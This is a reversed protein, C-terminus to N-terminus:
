NRFSYGREKLFASIRTWDGQEDMSATHAVSFTSGPPFQLLKQELTKLSASGYQNISYHISEEPMLYDIRAEVPFVPENARGYILFSGPAPGVSIQGGCSFRCAVQEVDKTGVLTSLRDVDNPSLTWGHASVFSDFLRWNLDYLQWDEQTHKQTGIRAEAGSEVYKTHWRSLQEWVVPKMASSGYKRLYEAADPALPTGEEVQKAALSELVPTAEMFGLSPFFQGRPCYLPPRMKQLVQELRPRAESPSVKLLYALVPIQVKCPWDALHQDIFPLVIPLTARTTYRHLLTASRILEDPSNLAVFNAAIGRQQAAPLSQDPLRLYLSSFRPAPRVVEQRMFATAPVPDLELWRLLAHGDGAEAKRRVVPLMLPSRLHDWNADLLAAQTSEPLLDFNAAAVAIVKPSYPARLDYVSGPVVWYGSMPFMIVTELSPVMAEPTKKPLSEFLTQRVQNVVAPTVGAMENGNEQSRNLLKAYAAFFVQRVGVNPDVLLRGMEAQAEDKHSNIKLCHTVDIGQSLLTALAIAAESTGLNCLADKEQQYKVYEASPPTTDKPPQSTWAAVGREIITKKWDDGAPVIELVMEATKSVSNSKVSNPSNTIQNTKDDLGFTLSLRVTYKGPADFAFRNTLTYTYKKPEATLDSSEVDYMGGSAMQCGHWGIDRWGTNPSVEFSWHTSFRCRPYGFCSERFMTCPELYHNPTGNSILVELPIVEGLQFRNSGSASRLEVKLDAPGPAPSDQAFTPFCWLAIALFLLTTRAMPNLAVASNLGTSGHQRKKGRVVTRVIRYNVNDCVDIPSLTSTSKCVDQVSTTAILCNCEFGRDPMLSHLLFKEVAVDFRGSICIKSCDFM